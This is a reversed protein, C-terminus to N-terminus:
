KSCLLGLSKDKRSYAHHRGNAGGGGGGGGGAHMPRPRPRAQQQEQPLASAMVAAAAPVAVEAVSSFSATMATASGRSTAALSKCSKIERPATRTKPSSLIGPLIISARIQSGATSHFRSPEIQRPPPPRARTEFNEGDAGTRSRSRSQSKSRSPTARLRLTPIPNPHPPHCPSRTGTRSGHPNETPFNSNFNLRSV